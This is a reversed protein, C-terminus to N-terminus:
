SGGLNDGSSHSHEWKCTGVSARQGVDGGESIWKGVEIDHVIISPYMKRYYKQKPM